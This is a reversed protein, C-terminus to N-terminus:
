RRSTLKILRTPRNTTIRTRVPPSFCRRSKRYVTSTAAVSLARHMMIMCCSLGYNKNANDAVSKMGASRSTGIVYLFKSEEATVTRFGRRARESMSATDENRGIMDLNVMAKTNKLPVLPHEVYYRSGILGKEEATFAIFLMSRQPRRATAM